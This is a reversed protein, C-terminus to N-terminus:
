VYSDEGGVYIWKGDEFYFYNAEYPPTDDFYLFGDADLIFTQKPDFEYSAEAYIAGTEEEVEFSFDEISIRRM